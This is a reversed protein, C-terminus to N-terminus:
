KIGRKYDSEIKAELLRLFQYFGYCAMVAILYIWCYTLMEATFLADHISAYILLLCTSNGIAYGDLVTIKKSKLVWVIRSFELTFLVFLIIVLAIRIIINIYGM